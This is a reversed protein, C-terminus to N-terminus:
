LWDRKPMRARWLSGIPSSNFLNYHDMAWKGINIFYDKDQFGGLHCIEAWRSQSELSCESMALILVGELHGMDLASSCAEPGDLYCMNTDSLVVDYKAGELAYSLDCGDEIQDVDFEAAVLSESYKVRLRGDDDIILLKPREM